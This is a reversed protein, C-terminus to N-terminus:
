ESKNKKFNKIDSDGLTYYIEAFDNLKFGMAEIIIILTVAKPETIANFSNSVTAKRIDAILAIDNYSKVKESVVKKSNDLNKKISLLRNLTIAIKIKIHEESQDKM